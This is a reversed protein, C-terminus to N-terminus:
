LCTSFILMILQEKLPLVALLVPPVIQIPSLASILKILLPFENENYDGFLEPHNAWLWRLTQGKYIGNKIISSKNNYGSVIWAEGSSTPCEYIKNLEDGAWPKVEFYPELFLIM